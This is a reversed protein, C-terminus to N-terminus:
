GGIHKLLTDAVAISAAAIDGNIDEDNKALEYTTAGTQSTKVHIMSQMAMAIFYERKTLGIADSNMRANTPYAPKNANSIKEM